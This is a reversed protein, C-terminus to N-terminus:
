MSFAHYYTFAGLGIIVDLLLPIYANPDQKLAMVAFALYLGGHVPRLDNWWMKGGFTEGAEKRLDYIFLYFFGLAIALAPIALLKLQEPTARAALYAYLIRAPICGLLFLAINKRM